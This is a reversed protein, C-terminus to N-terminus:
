VEVGREVAALEDLGERSETKDKQMKQM